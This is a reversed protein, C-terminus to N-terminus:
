QEDNILVEMYLYNDRIRYIKLPFKKELEEAVETALEKFVFEFRILCYDSFINYFRLNSVSYEDVKLIGMRRFYDIEEKEFTFLLEM